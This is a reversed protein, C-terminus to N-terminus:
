TTPLHRQDIFRRGKGEFRPLSNAPALIVDIKLGLRLQLEQAITHPLQDRDEVEITLRDMQQIRQATVRYEAVSPFSNIIEGIASPFINVGRIVIMDDARGVVGGQLLVFHNEEDPTYVPLVVDGTRYRIVPSGWRGLSTLVLEAPEGPPAPTNEGPILFEAIFESETVRLGRGQADAFGWPGIESAGAHDMVNANWLEAIRQRTAPLSGGPEGSVVIKRVSLDRLNLGNQAAVEAMHLAYSPTSFMMTVKATRLLDLRALTTMGGSPIVMLGRAVAADHASWFGIFPGFSFAMLVRDEATVQAADFIYQWTELWWSWDRKTDLVPMPQGSTGSTRHFRVYDSLSYTLNAAFGTTPLTAVLEQKYTFPLSSLDNMSFDAPSKGAFCPALKEAYFSNLPLIGTLMAALKQQQVQLLEPRTLSEQGRRYQYSPTNM